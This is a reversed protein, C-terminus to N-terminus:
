FVKWWEVGNLLINVGKSSPKCIPPNAGALAGWRLCQTTCDCCWTTCTTRCRTCTSACRTCAQSPSQRSPAPPSRNRPFVENWERYSWIAGELCTIPVGFCQLKASIRPEKLLPAWSERWTFCSLIPPSPLLGLNTCSRGSTPHDYTAGSMAFMFVMAQMPMNGVHRVAWIPRGSSVRFGVHRVRHASVCLIFAGVM